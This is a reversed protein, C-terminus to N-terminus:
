TEYHLAEERFLRQDNETDTKACSHFNHGAAFVLPSKHGIRSPDTVFRRRSPLFFFRLNARVAVRRRLALCHIGYM